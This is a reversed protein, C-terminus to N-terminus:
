THVNELGAERAWALAQKWEDRSIRRAIDPYDFAKYEPRYQPMLNVYTKPSLEDAVWQLFRDTGGINKPLVLHRVILGRTANGDADTQLEGVQRHMERIVAAAVEPYDSVGSSYKAALKGDQYKFDPLYIDIIGDLLKIVELNDYGGTNFVLPVDLGMPIALRVAKVIHPVVHSPTVFNINHCGRRQLGLMTEALEAHTTFQGDGRHNIEWNQCFCCLLNCNSFFVTGSGGRGVLEREEGYHPAASYMKLKATSSCVGTEGALRNAGCGRACGECEALMNWLTKERKALEGQREMELYAPEFDDSANKAGPPAACAVNWSSDLPVLVTGAISVSQWLFQRRSTNM